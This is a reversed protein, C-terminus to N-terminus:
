FPDTLLAVLLHLFYRQSRNFWQSGVSFVGTSQLHSQPSCPFSNLEWYIYIIDLLSLRLETAKSVRPIRATNHGFVM